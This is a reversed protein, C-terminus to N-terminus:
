EKKSIKKKKKKIKRTESSKLIENTQKIQKIETIREITRRMVGVRYVCGDDDSGVGWLDLDGGLTM